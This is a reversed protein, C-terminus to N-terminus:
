SSARVDLPDLRTVDIPSALLEAISERYAKYHPTQRHAEIAAEDAYQEILCFLTSGAAASRYLDYRRCGPEARTSVVMGELIAQVRAEHGAQPAFRAVVLPSM